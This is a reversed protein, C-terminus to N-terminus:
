ARRYAAALTACLLATAGLYGTEARLLADDVVPALLWAVFAAGALLWALAARAAHDRALAAQNLTAAMLHCGMGLAVLALGVRGYDTADGFLLNMAWPGILLLGLAVALAFGAVALVTIRV